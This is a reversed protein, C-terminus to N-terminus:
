GTRQNILFLMTKYVEQLKQKRDLIMPRLLIMFLEQLCLDSNNHPNGVSISSLMSWVVPWPVVSRFPSNKVNVKVRQGLVCLARSYDGMRILASGKQESSTFSSLIRSPLWLRLTIWDQGLAAEQRIHKTQFEAKLNRPRKQDQQRKNSLGQFWFM